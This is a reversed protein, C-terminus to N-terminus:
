DNAIYPDSTYTDTGNTVTITYVYKADGRPRTIVCMFITYPKKGRPSCEIKNPKLGSEWRADVGKDPFYYGADGISWVIIIPGGVGEGSKIHVPEQDVVVRSDEVYVIPNLRDPRVLAAVFPNYRIFWARSFPRISEEKMGPSDSGEKTTAYSACGAVFAVAAIVLFYKKM